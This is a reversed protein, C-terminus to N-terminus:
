LWAVKNSVGISMCFAPVQYFCVLSRRHHSMQRTCEHMAKGQMSGALLVDSEEYMFWTTSLSLKLQRVTHPPLERAMAILARHHKPALGLAEADAACSKDVRCRM